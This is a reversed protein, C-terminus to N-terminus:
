GVQDFFSHDIDMVQKPKLGLWNAEILDLLRENDALEIPVAGDREAEKKADADFHGTNTLVGKDARGITANRSDGM